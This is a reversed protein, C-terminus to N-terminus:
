QSYAARKLHSQIRDTSLANEFQEIDKTRLRNTPKNFFELPVKLLDLYKSQRSESIKRSRNVKGLALEECFRRIEARIVSPVDWKAVGELRPVLNRNNTRIIEVM